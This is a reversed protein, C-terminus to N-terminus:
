QYELNFQLNEGEKSCSQMCFRSVSLSGAIVKKKKKAVAHSFLRELSENKMQKLLFM